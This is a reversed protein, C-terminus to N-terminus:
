CAGCFCCTEPRSRQDCAQYSCPLLWVQLLKGALGLLLLSSLLV